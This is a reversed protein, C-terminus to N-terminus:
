RAAKTGGSSPAGAASVWPVGAVIRDARALMTEVGHPDPPGHAPPHLALDAVVGTLEAAPVAGTLARLLGRGAELARPNATFGGEVLLPVMVANGAAKALVLTRGDGSSPVPGTALSCSALLGVTSALRGGEPGFRLLGVGVGAALAAVTARSRRPELSGTRDFIEGLSTAVASCIAHARLVERSGLGEACAVADLAAFAVIHHDGVRDPAAGPRRLARAVSAGSGIASAIVATRGAPQDAAPATATDVGHIELLQTVSPHGWGARALGVLGSLLQATGAAIQTPLERDWLAAASACLTATVEASPVEDWVGTDGAM